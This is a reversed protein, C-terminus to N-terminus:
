TGRLRFETRWAAAQMRRAPEEPSERRERGDLETPDGPRNRGPKRTPRSGGPEEKTSPGWGDEEPPTEIEARVRGQSKTLCM